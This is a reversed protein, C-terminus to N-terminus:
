NKDIFTGQYLRAVQKSSLAGTFLALDDIQGEKGENYIELKTLSESNALWIYPLTKKLQGDIYLSLQYRYSDYSLTFHHWNSDNPLDNDGLTLAGDHGNYFFRRQSQCIQLGFLRRGQNGLIIATRDDSIGSANRWWFAMTLDRSFFPEILNSDLYKGYKSVLVTNDSGWWAYSNDPLDIVAGKIQDIAQNTSVGNVNEYHENFDWYYQLAPEAQPERQTYPAFILENDYMEKVETASLSSSWLTLEDFALRGSGSIKVQRFNSILTQAFQEEVLKKGNHYVRWVGASQDVTLALHHWDLKSKEYVTKEYYRWASNPLGAITLLEESITIEYSSGAKNILSVTFNSSYYDDTSRYYLSLSGQNSDFDSDLDFVFETNHQDLHLSCDNVGVLYEAEGYCEDFHWVEQLKPSNIVAKPIYPEFDADEYVVDPFEGEDPNTTEDGGPEEQGSQNDDDGDNNAPIYDDWSISPDASAELRFDRLNDHNTSVRNLYYNDVIEPAPGQGRFYTASGFGVADIIDPDDSSSIAGKGLYLTYGNGTWSFEKRKAIADARSLFYPNAGDRVILYYGKARITTGGPYIGDVEHGIRIAISPDNATKTKEIRFGAEALDFSFNNPNYLEIFDNLGTAYIKSIIASPVATSTTQNIPASEPSYALEPVEGQEVKSDIVATQTPAEAESIFDFNPESSEILSNSPNNNIPVTPGFFSSEEEKIGTSSQNSPNNVKTEIKSNTIGINVEENDNYSYNAQPSNRPTTQGQSQNINIPLYSDAETPQSNYFALEDFDTSERNFLKDGINKIGQGIKEFTLKVASVPNNVFSWRLILALTPTKGRIEKEKFSSSIQIDVPVSKLTTQLYQTYPLFFYREGQYIRGANFGIKEPLPLVLNARASIKSFELSTSFCDGSNNFYSKNDFGDPTIDVAYNLRSYVLDNLNNPNPIASSEYVKEVLGVCTWDNDGPGKQKIFDFDYGYNREALAKAIAVAKLRESPSAGIPIKAGLFVEGASENVFYKAETKVIGGALAEVVMDVGNEKGVYIGVHGPYIHLLVGAKIGLLEQSSYGYMLGDGSTRYLLAGLELAKVTEGCFLSIIIFLTISISVFKAKM